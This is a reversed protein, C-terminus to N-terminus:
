PGTNGAGGGGGAALLMSTQAHAPLIVSEVVPKNWKSAVVAGTGLALTKLARRRSNDSSSCKPSIKRDSPDKMPVRKLGPNNSLSIESFGQM